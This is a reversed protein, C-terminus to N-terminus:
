EGDVASQRIDGDFTEVAALVQEWTGDPFAKFWANVTALLQDRLGEVSPKGRVGRVRRIGAIAIATTSKMECLHTAVTLLTEDDDIRGLEALITQRYKQTTNNALWHFRPDAGFGLLSMSRVEYTKNALGRSSTTERYLAAFQRRHEESYFLKSPRGRPPTESIMETNTEM